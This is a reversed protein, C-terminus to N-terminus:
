EATFAEYDKAPNSTPAYSGLNTRTLQAEEVVVAQRITTNYLKTGIQEALDMIQERLDKSITTRESYKCLLIGAIELDPNGLERVDGITSYLQLVAQMSFAGANMTIILEDAATYANETLVNLAPPTDIIIHDYQDAVPALAKKIILVSAAKNFERDAASLLLSGPLIDGNKTSQIAESAAAAGKMVDYATPTGERMVAGMSYTLNSQPDLDVLLVSRGRNRLGEALAQATTTKGVGGKQNTIATIKAMNKRWEVVM